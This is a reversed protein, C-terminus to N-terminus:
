LDIEMMEPQDQDSRVMWEERSIAIRVENRHWAGRLTAISMNATIKPNMPRDNWLLWQDECILVMMEGLGVKPGPYFKRPAFFPRPKRESV